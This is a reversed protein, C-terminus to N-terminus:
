ILALLFEPATYLGPDMPIPIERVKNIGLRWPRADLRDADDIHRHGIRPDLKSREIALGPIGEQIM